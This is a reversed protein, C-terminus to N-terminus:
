FLNAHCFRCDGVLKFKEFGFPQYFCASFSFVYIVAEVVLVDDVDNIDGEGVDAVLAVTFVAAALMAFVVLSIHSLSRYM